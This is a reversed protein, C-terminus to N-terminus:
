KNKFRLAASLSEANKEKETEIFKDVRNKTFTFTFLDYLSTTSFFLICKCLVKIYSSKAM